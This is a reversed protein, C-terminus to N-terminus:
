PRRKQLSGPRHAELPMPGVRGSVGAVRCLVAMGHWVLDQEFVLVVLYGVRFAPGEQIEFRLAVGGGPIVDPGQHPSLLPLSAFPTLLLITQGFPTPANGCTRDLGAVLHAALAATAQGSSNLPHRL